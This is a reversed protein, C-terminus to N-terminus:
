ARARAAPVNRWVGPPVGAWQRFWVYFSPTNEFGVLSSIAAIPLDSCELMRRVSPRRVHDVLQKFSMGCAARIRRQLTKSSMGLDEAIADQTAEHHPLAAAIRARVTHVFLEAESDALSEQVVGELLPHASPDATRMRERAVAAPLVIATDAQDFKPRCGFWREYHRTDRPKAHQFRVETPKWACGTLDRLMRLTSLVGAENRAPFLAFEGPHDFTATM